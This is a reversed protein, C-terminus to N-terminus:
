VFDPTGLVVEPATNTHTAKGDGASRALRALGFDLIKVKGTRTLMLNSPKIDRHVMGHENAHQLGLATQRALQCSTAVPLPGKRWVLRDLGQGDVYEMVLFHLGGAEEADFSTVINPHSLKAALRVERRFRDLAATDAVLRPAVVKLAVVRGMVKHEAKFVTGMGGAGIRGTVKYRPHALLATPIEAPLTDFGGPNPTRAAT